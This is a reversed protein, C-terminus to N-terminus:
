GAPNYWRIDGAKDFVFLLKTSDREKAVKEDDGGLGGTRDSNQLRRYATRTSKEIKASSKLKWPLLQRTISFIRHVRGLSVVTIVNYVYLYTSVVIFTFVVGPLRAM